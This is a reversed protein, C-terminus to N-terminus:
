FQSNSSKLQTPKNQIRCNRKLSFNSMSWREGLCLFDVTQDGSDNAELKQRNPVLWMARRWHGRIGKLEFEGVPEAKVGHEVKSAPTLALDNGRM